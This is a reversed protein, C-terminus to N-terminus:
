VWVPVWFATGSSDLFKAWGNQAAVAPGSGGITGFTPAAGGGLATTARGLQLDFNTALRIPSVSASLILSGGSTSITPSSAGTGSGGTLTLVNAASSNSLVKAQPISNVSFTINSTSGKTSIFLSVNSDSGNSQVTVSGPSGTDGARVQLYDVNAGTGSALFKAIPNNGAGNSFTVGGAGQTIVNLGVDTDTGQASIIPGSGTISPYMDLFNVLGTGVGKIRFTPWGNGTKFQLDNNASTSISGNSLIQLGTNLVSVAKTAITAGTGTAYLDLSTSHDAISWNNLATTKFGAQIDTSFSTGDYGLVGFSGLSQGTTITTPAVMTGNAARNLFSGIGAGFTEVVVSGNIGNAQVGRVLTGAFPTTLGTISNANATLTTPYPIGSGLIATMGIVTVLEGGICPNLLTFQNPADETYDLVSTQLVGNVFVWLSSTNPTYTFNTLIFIAQAATATFSQPAITAASNAVVISGPNWANGSM